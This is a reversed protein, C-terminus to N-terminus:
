QAEVLPVGSDRNSPDRGGASSDSHGDKGSNNVEGTLEQAKLQNMIDNILPNALKWPCEALVDLVYSIGQPTFMIKKNGVIKVEM